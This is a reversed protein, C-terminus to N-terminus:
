IEANKPLTFLFKSGAGEASEVWIKGKLTDIIKKTVALGMGTGSYDEKNHLRQFIIFIREFYDPHIGIGNDTIEFQWEDGKDQATIQIKPAKGQKSYKLANSILNQFVQRLPSKYLLVSPLNEKIIQANKEEIQKSYLIRIEEVLVNLDIWELSEKTRGIKSYELLDLIIERMRGAGDVAFHIYKKAREDLEPAYKKELQTLFNSVMRLPEQLDHSAVYAFQELEQNSAELEVKQKQLNQNLESMKLESVKRDTIDQFSGYIRICKGNVMEAEGIVRIWKENNKATVIELEADWSLGKEMANQLLANIRNRSEGEKYFHIATNIDPIYTDDVEHIERTILSWFLKNKVLDVEWGGIRAMKTAKQLLQELEKKETIDKAVAYITEEEKLLTTTWALWKIKGSKTIYRNEFYLTTSHNTLKQLRLMSRERDEPHILNSYPKELLEQESYELIESIAPNVKKFYGDIGAIAIIDPAFNFVQNLEEDLLKRKLEAGIFNGLSNYFSYFHDNENIKKGLGMLLVGNVEQNHSLPIAYVSHIGYKLAESKRLFTIKTDSLDWKQIKNTEWVIGQIGEGKKFVRKNATETIFGDAAPKYSKSTLKRISKQDKNVLWAEGLIFDGFEAMEEMVKIFAEKISDTQNFNLVIKNLLNKQLELHMQETVDREIAVWHTFWGKEDSVPSASFNIWFEEGNKKYNITTIECPQWNRIAQSLKKLEKKDSKPGQLIRPTKGIVEEVSYGTMKTFAENAFIIKPGPEDFPEAETILIADNTNTVVSSMLKLRQEESKQKTIDQMAGYMRIGIGNQNRLVIGKDIVYAFSGDSKRYRYEEIWNSKEPDEIIKLISDNVRELDDPHIYKVWNSKENDNKGISYGFIKEFGEGWFIENTVLNWDWIADFTAKSVNEYRFNSEKLEKEKRTDELIVRLINSTRLLTNEEFLTPQRSERYYASLTAVVEERADFIPTSSCAKLGHTLAIKKYKDWRKDHEIDAVIVKEKLFAATGFSANNDKIDLGSISLLYEIPLSPSVLNYLQNGSREQVACLMGPHLKEIGNVYTNIIAKLPMDGKANSELVKRELMELEQYYRSESIDKMAGIMRIAKQHEDRVIFARDQVFVLQGDPRILRYESKWFTEQGKLVANLESEVASRDDPHVYKGWEIGLRSLEEKSFGFNTIFGEARYVEDSLLDWDWIADSTAKTVMEYRQNSEKLKKDAIVKETIDNLIVLSARRGNYDILHGNVEMSMLEGSKTKHLWVRHHKSGYMEENATIQEILPIEEIPRIDRITMQLFEERSYGYKKLAVENCDMIALTAFDWIFMPSPNNEFLNKYKKESEVIAAEAEISQTADKAICFMLKETNDWKASWILQVITGDKKIYRNKFNTMDIGAMISDAAQHTVEFDDPHVLEMYKTGILEQPTYGWIALSAASIKVFEGEENITCIVDPSYDMIKDLEAKTKNIEESQKYENTVDLVTSIMLNQDYLPINKANIIRKEGSKQTIEIGKWEMRSVDGSAVDSMVRNMMEKRYSEDPYVKMFFASVSTLDTEDWGYIQSFNKNIITADGTDIKNVSVGIPLHILITEIFKNREYLENANKLIQNELEKQETIDIIISDWITAGDSLRSPRGMGRQWHISGDPHYIRWESKWLTLSEASQKISAFVRDIDEPHFLEWILNINNMAEEAEIGWIIGSGRSLYQLEDKGHADLKYRFIVGNLNDTINSLRTEILKKESVDSFNVVLGGVAPELLLNTLTAEVWLWNGNKHKIRYSLDKLPVGPHSFAEALKNQIYPHDEPHLTAFSDLRLTEEETYGIIRNAGPSIFVPKLAENIIVIADSGNEVLARFRKESAELRLQGAKKETIDNVITYCLTEGEKNTFLASSYELPFREGNKRIGYVEGSTRGKDEREKLLLHIASDNSHDMIGQRGIELMEEATYGFISQAAINADLITGDTKSLLIGSLSNDILAKYQNRSQVVLEEAKKQETIDRVSTIKYRSGTPSEMLEATVYVSIVSGDKKLVEWEAPVEHGQEIFADHLQQTEKRYEEPVMMTFNKGILEEKRYGYIDCYSKNVDIFTGQENTICLGISTANYISSLLKEKESLSYQTTRLETIDLLGISIGQIINDTTIAPTYNIRYWFIEGNEGSMKFEQTISEGQIVKAIDNIFLTLQAPEILDIISQNVQLTKKRLLYFLDNAKNNFAMIKYTNDVLVFAQLQNNLLANTNSQNLKLLVEKRELEEHAAKLESYTIQIEENTSQLEENSTELEENTSQLEENTSQMEENLSQMEENSTELEEIYTQLHEKTAALEHELEQIRMDILDKDDNIVGKAIFEELELREFIVIFYENTNETFILPKATIRVYYQNGFLTFKKITSKVSERAKIARTIVSRIEIQLEQNVMSLLNAQLAGQPLTMFLRVDGNIAILEFEEGIVVYPHEYTNFLTEKVMDSITIDRKIKKPVQPAPPHIKTQFGSLKISASLGGRKRQYLKNKADIASFLDGFQGITESKGLFLYGDQLLAYHFLPLIQQQLATGFYILLNRCSILDLKLFPPNSTLDHKSFLVMSRISKILEFNKGNPVFFEEIFAKPVKELSTDSYVGKRAIAIAKEDIDTAFIQINYLTIRDKLLKSLLLAISYAEEGTYCGPVWIRIADQEKKSAILAKLTKELSDFAEPDRFFMTVGILVLNFMEDQERTDKELLTLYTAMNDIGLISLRKELRRIITASKYNSFDTGTRKNLLQMIKELEGSSKEAIAQQRGIKEPEALHAAIAEGMNEPPMILNAAGTQIASQPMGDYKASKPDQVIVIGGKDKIAKVGAAGDSGTGSLIIGIVRKGAEEALSRFLIDVSPKPGIGSSPKQMIIHGGSVAIENDPPTIYVNGSKVLLGNEAEAVSLRTQRGLLQVLMSKHTPSLHQAIIIATNNLEPLHYLFDQLAELGGASAGIAIIYPQNKEARKRVPEQKVAKEVKKSAM